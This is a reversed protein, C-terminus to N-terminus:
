ASSHSVNQVCSPVESTSTSCDVVSGGGVSSLDSMGGLTLGVSCGVSSMGSRTADGGGNTGGGGGNAGGDDGICYM